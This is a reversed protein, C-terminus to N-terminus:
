DVQEKLMESTPKNSTIGLKNNSPRTFNLRKLIDNTLTLKGSVVAPLITDYGENYWKSLALIEYAFVEAALKSVNNSLLEGYILDYEQPNFQFYPTISNGLLRQDFYEKVVGLRRRLEIADQVGLSSNKDHTTTTTTTTSSVSVATSSVSASGHAM